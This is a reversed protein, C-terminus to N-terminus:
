LPNTRVSLIALRLDPCIVSPVPVLDSPQLNSWLNETRGYPTWAEAPPLTRCRTGEALNWARGCNALWVPQLRSEMGTVISLLRTRVKCAPRKM